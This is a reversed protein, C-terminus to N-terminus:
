ELGLDTDELATMVERGEASDALFLGHPAERRWGRALYHLPNAQDREGEPEVLAAHLTDLMDGALSRSLRGVNENEDRLKTLEVRMELFMTAVMQTEPSANRDGLVRQAWEAAIKDGIDRLRTETVDM